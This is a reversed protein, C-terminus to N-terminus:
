HSGLSPVACTIGSVWYGPGLYKNEDFYYIKKFKKTTRSNMSQSSLTVFLFFAFEALLVREFVAKNNQECKCNLMCNQSNKVQFYEFRIYSGM